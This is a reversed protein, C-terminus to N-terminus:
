PELKKKLVPCLFAVCGSKNRLFGSANAAARRLPEM